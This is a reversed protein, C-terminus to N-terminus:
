APWHKPSTSVRVRVEPPEIQLHFHHNSMTADRFEECDPARGFTLTTPRDHTRSRGALPGELINLTVRGAVSLAGPQPCSIPPPETWTAAARLLERRIGGGLDELFVM